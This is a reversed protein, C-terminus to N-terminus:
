VLNFPLLALGCLSRVESSQGDGADAAAAGKPKAVATFKGRKKAEVREPEKVAQFDLFKLGPLRFLVTYRCHGLVIWVGCCRADLRLV